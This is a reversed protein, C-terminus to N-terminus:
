DPKIGADKIVKGWKSIEAKIVAAFQEPSNGVAETGAHFFREKVDPQHLVRVMEQNLRRITAPPTKIPAFVGIISESEYGPVTAAATPLEPTLPSPELSTVALAKVKGSKIHPAVASATAFMIQNEGSILGTLAPGTGKYPIRVINIGAMSKFLEASLHTPVGTAGSGYNLQGPKARALAILEKTSNAAVSPHVVIVNPSRIAQTVAAFDKQVEYSLKQMFPALYFSGGHLLLTYGDAPAKAVIEGPLAGSRNDVIVQQGLSPSMGQALVRAIIDGGGGPESTVIRIPKNPFDQGYVPTGALLAVAISAVTFGSSTMGEGSKFYAFGAEM